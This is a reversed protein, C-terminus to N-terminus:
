ARPRRRARMQDRLEGDTMSELLGPEVHLKQDAAVADLLDARSMRVLRATDYEVCADPALASAEARDMTNRLAHTFAVLQFDAPGPTVDDALAALDSEALLEGESPEDDGEDNDDIM